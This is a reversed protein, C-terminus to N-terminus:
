DIVQPDVRVRVSGPLKRASRRSAEAKAAAVLAPGSSTPGRLTVRVVDDGLELPGFTEVGEVPGSAEAFGAVADAPGEVVVLKSAPPFSAERRGALEREAFGAADLRVLAQVARAHTEGVILVAGGESAPRVRACAALWRRLAEEAARLEPRELLLTADLLVAAAYGHTPEPEAGPTALVIAPEADVEAVPHGSWSQVVRTQPFARGLEEATRTVGVRPARLRTDGCEPCRWPGPLPGCLRCVLALGSAGREGRLPTRCRPCRAPERCGQCAVSSVYGARPVQVLVPGSALGARLTAFVDHPLRAVRADPDRDLARETDAAVRVVPGRRRMEAPPLGIPVVWGKEVLAQVEATRGYGALLLGAHEGSARLSAVERVHPYPARPEALSDNGDDFVAILGLDAVPAYVAARTGLVLRAQGRAAALFHRYRAAPGLEATLTVFSGAGFSAACRAELRALAEADPVVLVASRGAALTAAAADVLGGAWDGDPGFVPVPSWAARVPRGGALGALFADGEAFRPLVGAEGASAPAAPAARSAKETAAHRGPVALRLVDALTGGYHDAVQRALRAIPAALVVEGSTVRELPRLKGAESDHKLALVFGDRLKGAFRVRVRCGVAVEEAQQPTVLYDFPRDLHPLSVDVAVEAVLPPEGESAEGGPLVSPSTADTM